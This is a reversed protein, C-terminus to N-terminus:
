HFQWGSRSRHLEAPHDPALRRRRGARKRQAPLRPRRPAARLRPMPNFSRGFLGSWNKRFPSSNRGEGAKNCLSWATCFGTIRQDRRGRYFEFGRCRTPNKIRPEATARRALHRVSRSQSFYAKVTLLRARSPQGRFPFAAADVGRLGSLNIRVKPEIEGGALGFCFRM